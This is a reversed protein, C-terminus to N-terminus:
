ARLSGIRRGVLANAALAVAGNERRQQEVRQPALLEALEFDLIEPVRAFPHWVKLHRAFAALIAIQRQMGAGMCENVFVEGGCAVALVVAACQEARDAVVRRAPEVLRDRRFADILQHACVRSREPELDARMRQPRRGGRIREVVLGVDSLHLLPETVGINGGRPDVIVAAGPGFVARRELHGVSLKSFIVAKLGFIVSEKLSPRLTSSGLRFPGTRSRRIEL